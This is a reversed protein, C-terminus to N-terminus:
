NYSSNYHKTMIVLIKATQAVFRCVPLAGDILADLAPRLEERVPPKFSFGFLADVLVKYENKLDNPQPLNDVVRVGFRKCQELLNEYLPKPTRKPYYVAVSYGFLVM